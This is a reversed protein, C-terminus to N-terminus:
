IVVEHVCVFSDRQYRILLEYLSWFNHSIHSGICPKKRKKRKKKKKTRKNQFSSHRDCDCSYEEQLFDSSHLIINMRFTLSFIAKRVIKNGLIRFTPFSPGFLGIQKCFM